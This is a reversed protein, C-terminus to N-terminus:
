VMYEKFDELPDDFGEKMVFTGKMFGAKLPPKEASLCPGQYKQELFEIFDLVEEQQAPNLKKIKDVILQDKM